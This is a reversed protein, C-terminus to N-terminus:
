PIAQLALRAEEIERVLRRPALVLFREFAARAAAADARLWALQGRYYPILPYRPLKTMAEAFVSDAADLQGLRGLTRALEVLLVPDSANLALAERREALAEELRGVQEYLDALRVHAMWFGLDFALVQRYGKEAAWARGLRDQWYAEMYRLDNTVLYTLPHASDAQEARWSRNILLQWIRLGPEFRGNRALARAFEWLGGQTANESPTGPPSSDRPAGPATLDVLPDFLVAARVGTSVIQVLSDVMAQPPPRRGRRVWPPGFVEPHRVMVLIAVGLHAPAYRPDVALARRFAEDALVPEEDNLHALAALHHATADNSDIRAGAYLSDPPAPLWFAQGWASPAYTLGLLLLAGVGWPTADRRPSPRPM